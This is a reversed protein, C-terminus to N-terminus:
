QWSSPNFFSTSGQSPAYAPSSFDYKIGPISTNFVDNWSMGGPGAGAQTGGSLSRGFISGVLGAGQALPRALPSTLSENAPQLLEGRFEGMEKSAIKSVKNNFRGATLAMRARTRAQNYNAFRSDFAGGIAESPDLASSYNLAADAYYSM